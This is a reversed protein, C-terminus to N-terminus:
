PVETVSTAPEPMDAENLAVEDLAIVHRGLPLEVTCIVGDQTFELATSAGLDYPLGSEILRRGFGTRPPEGEPLAVGRERWVFTLRGGSSTNMIRWRVSLRGGPQSFAGYKVANTRLEHIALSLAEAAKDKLLIPPGAIVAQEGDQSTSVALENRLLEDLRLGVAGRNALLGQTRALADLRGSFSDSFEELTQSNNLSRAAINRVVALINKVRHQLEALLLLQHGEARRRADVDQLVGLLRGDTRTGSLRVWIEGRSGMMRVELDLSAQKSRTAEFTTALRERDEPHTTAILAELTQPPPFSFATEFGDSHTFQGSALDMEWITIRAATTALRTREEATQRAAQAVTTATIDLFTLVTGAIFNDVSRYPLVRVLYRNHGPAGIEREITSLTRLVRRVDEELDPYPVRSAIHAIPRGLDSEILHFVESMSPTFSKVRLENDLFLTAIQTSELLNKLDSNTRALEGVRHALEGNVTQLEENVSQLEEKSTELEEKSTELEENASQLEENISQYEENSSKLEENTSELEEITAQLRDKVVRLENELRNVHEDRLVSPDLPRDEGGHGPDAGYDQFLVVFSTTEQESDALPEVTLGVKRAEGDTGMRLPAVRATKRDSAARHLAARLDLRLDRHVLNLLNLNAVGSSPDLFPGTRGSFNLVQYEDDTVVYAPAYREVVREARKSLMTGAGYRPPATPEGSVRRLESRATLPFEPLIRSPTEQRQFIRHKRDLPQFLKPHRSVNESPGLFLYGGPRLAFHFLPIVREQLDANLYILLNRCSILDVRSFPADKIVNHQSFVCMERLDKHICYTGGEKIFWRALREPPVDKVITDQYRGTRAVALARADIDTAFIQVHPPSDMASTAERILMALSYAEEGTSCGLVWVRLPEEPRRDKLIEPIVQRELVEFEAPDRFFQTVGILLDQFLDQVEDPNNRLRETYADVNDIQVVHMRRQIRRLFTNAKYGNFDHGTRNRLITAIAPLRSEGGALIVKTEQSEVTERLHVVLKMLRAPIKELPVRIDAMGAAGDIDVPDPEPHDPEAEALALGGCEKLRAVGLSGAHKVAALIIGVAAERQQEALSILFNDITGRHGPKEDASSLRLRGEELTTRTGIPAVYIRNPVLEDGDEVIRVSISGNRGLVEVLSNIDIPNESESVIVFAAGTERPLLTFLRELSRFALASAGLGVVVMPEGPVVGMAEETQQRM